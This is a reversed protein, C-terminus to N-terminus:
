PEVGDLMRSYVSKSAVWVIRLIVITLSLGLWLIL